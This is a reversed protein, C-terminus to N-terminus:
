AEKEKLINLFHAVNLTKLYAQRKELAALPTDPLDVIDEPRIDDGLAERSAHHDHAEAAVHGVIMAAEEAAKRRLAHPAERHAIDSQLAKMRVRCQSAADLEKAIQALKRRKGFGDFIAHTVRLLIGALKNSAIFSCSFLGALALGLGLAGLGGQGDDGAAQATTFQFLAMGAMVAVIPVFGFARLLRRVPRKSADSGGHLVVHSLMLGAVLSWRISLMDSGLDEGSSLAPYQAHLSVTLAYAESACAIVMGLASVSAKFYAHGLPVIASEAAQYGAQARAFVAHYDLGTGTM